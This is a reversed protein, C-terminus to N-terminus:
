PATVLDLSRSASTLIKAHGFTNSQHTGEREIFRKPRKGDDSWVKEAGEALSGFAAPCQVYSEAEVSLALKPAM